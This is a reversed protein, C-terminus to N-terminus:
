LHKNNVINNLCLHLSDKWHPISIHFDEKIKAKNLVSYYPRTAPTPYDKTEIPHIYTQAQTYYMIEKAFDYWSCVGENSYHYLTPKTIKANDFAIKLITEALDAAYTPTGIQDYVVQLEKREQSLRLMTKVFNHGFSSYLWSTRIIACRNVTNLLIHEGELKTQGYVSLPQTADNETYPKHNKGDFVYDTSLHILFFNYKRSALAINKLANVNVNHANEKDTEAKDVATYAATHILVDCPNEKIFNNVALSDTIDLEEIDICTFSVNPYQKAVVQLERGLQGKGGTILIKKM